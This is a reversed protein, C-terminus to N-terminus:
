TPRCSSGTASGRPRGRRPQVLRGELVQYTYAPTLENPIVLVVVSALAGARGQGLFLHIDASFPTRSTRARTSCSGARRRFALRPLPGPGAPLARAARPRLLVAARLFPARLAPAARSTSPRRRDLPPPPAGTTDYVRADAVVTYAGYSRKVDKLRANFEGVLEGAGAARAVCCCRAWRRRCAVAGAVIATGCGTRLGYAVEVSRVVTVPKPSLQARRERSRSSCRGDHTLRM